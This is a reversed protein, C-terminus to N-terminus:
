TRAVTAWVRTASAPLPLTSRISGSESRTVAAIEVEYGARQLLQTTMDRVAPEDEVVLVRGVGAMPAAVVVPAPVCRTGRRRLQARGARDLYRVIKM